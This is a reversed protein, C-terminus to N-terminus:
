EVRVGLKRFYEGYRRDTGLIHDRFWSRVVNFMTMSVSTPDREYEEWYSEVVRAFVAHEKRHDVLGSYGYKEMLAEESRFHARTYDKFGTLIAAAEEEAKGTILAEYFRNLLEFFRKHQEDMVKVYVTYDPRWEAIRAPMRIISLTARGRLRGLAEAARVGLYSEGEVEVALAVLRGNSTLARVTFGDGMVSSYLTGRVGARATLASLLSTLEERAGLGRFEISAVTVTEGHLLALYQLEPDALLRSYAELRAPDIVFGRIRLAELRGGPDKM